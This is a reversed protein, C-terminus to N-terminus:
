RRVQIAGSSSFPLPRTFPIDVALSGDLRYKVHDPVGGALLSTVHSASGLIDLEVSIAFRDEGRAPVTFSAATEGGAFRQDDFMIRYRISSVPLPFSNPNNVHFSLLFTQRDLSASELEVGTLEVRPTAVLTETGACASFM